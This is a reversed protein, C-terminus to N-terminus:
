LNILNEQELQVVNDVDSVSDKEKDVHLKPTYRLNCVQAWYVPISGRTQVFSM